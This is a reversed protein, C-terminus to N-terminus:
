SRSRIGSIADTRADAPYREANRRTADSIEKILEAKTLMSYYPIGSRRGINRLEKVTLDEYQGNDIIETKLLSKIAELDLQNTLKLIKELDDLSVHSLDTSSLYQTLRRARLALKHARNRIEEIRNKKM